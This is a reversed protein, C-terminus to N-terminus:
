YYGVAVIVGFVLSCNPLCGFVVFLLLRCVVDLVFVLLVDDFLLLLRLWPLYIVVGCCVFLLVCLCCVVVIFLLLWCRILFLVGVVFCCRCRVVFLTLM